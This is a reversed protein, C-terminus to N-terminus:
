IQHNYVRYPSLIDADKRSFVDAFELYEPPLVTLPDVHQKPKLAKEIDELSASFLYNERKKALVVYVAAGIVAIDPKESGSSTPIPSQAEM